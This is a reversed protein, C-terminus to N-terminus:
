LTVLIWGREIVGPVRRQKCDINGTDTQCTASLITESNNDYDSISTTWGNTKEHEFTIKFERLVTGDRRFALIKWHNSKKEDICPSSNKDSINLVIEDDLRVTEEPLPVNWTHMCKGPVPSVNIKTYSQNKIQLRYWQEANAGSSLYFSFLISLMYTMYRM